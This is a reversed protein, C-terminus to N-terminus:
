IKKRWCECWLRVEKSPPLNISEATNQTLREYQKEVQYREIRNIEPMEIEVFVVDPKERLIVNMAQIPNTFTCLVQTGSIDQLLTELHALLHPEDDVLIVRM